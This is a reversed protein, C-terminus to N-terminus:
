FESGLISQYKFTIKSELNIANVAISNTVIPNDILNHKRQCKMDVINYVDFLGFLVNHRVYVKM